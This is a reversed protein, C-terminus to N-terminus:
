LLLTLTNNSLYLVYLHSNLSSKLASVLKSSQSTSADFYYVVLKLITGIPLFYKDSYM